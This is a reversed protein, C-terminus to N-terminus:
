SFRDTMCINSSQSWFALSYAIFNNIGQFIKKIKQRNQRRLWVSTCSTAESEVVKDFHIQQVMSLFMSQRDITELWVGEFSVKWNKWIQDKPNQFLLFLLLASRTSEFDSRFTQHSFESDSNWKFKVTHHWDTGDWDLNRKVATRLHQNTAPYMDPHSSPEGWWHRHGSQGPLRLQQLDAPHRSQAQSRSQEARWLLCDRRAQQSDPM